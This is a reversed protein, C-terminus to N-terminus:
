GSTTTVPQIPPLLADDGKKLGYRGRDAGALVLALAIKGTPTDVNDVSALSAHQWVPVVSPTADATEVGLAPVGAAGLGSYLATLFRASPGRQPKATRLVVIGDAPQLKGKQEVVLEGSLLDWLPTKGGAALEGALARGLDPLWNKGTAQVLNRHGALAHRLGDPDIPVRVVRLIVTGGADHVAREVSTHTRGGAPGVVLVTIKKALLRGSILVPYTDEAFTRAAQQQARLSASEQSTADVKARLENIQNQLLQRESSDIIGKGSIGVGVVIGVVLALFVAALSAVHYRFDFM